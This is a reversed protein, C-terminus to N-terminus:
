LLGSLTVDGRYGRHPPERTVQLRAALAQIHDRHRLLERGTTAAQRTRSLDPLALRGQAFSHKWMLNLYNAYLGLVHGAAAPEMTFGLREATRPTFIYSTAVIRLGGPLRGGEVEDALAVLGQLYYALTKRAAPPGRDRWRLHVLYDFNTGGHIRYETAGPNEVLLMPSFYRYRGLLYLVPATALQIVPMWLPLMAIWLLYCGAAAAAKWALGHGAASLTWGLGAALAAMPLLAPICIIIAWTWQRPRPLSFFNRVSLGPHSVFAPLGRGPVSPPRPQNGRAGM